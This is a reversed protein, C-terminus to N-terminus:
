AWSERGNVRSGGSRPIMEPAIQAQPEIWLGSGSRARVSETIRVTASPESQALKM